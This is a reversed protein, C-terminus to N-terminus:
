SPLSANSPSPTAARPPGPEAIIEPPLPPPADRELLRCTSRALAAPKHRDVEMVRECSTRDFVCSGQRYLCAGYALCAHGHRCDLLCRRRRAAPEESPPM